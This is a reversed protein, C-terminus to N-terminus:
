ESDLDLLVHVSVKTRDSFHTNSVQSWLSFSLWLGFVLVLAHFRRNRLLMLHWCRMLGACFTYYVLWRWFWGSWSAAIIRRDVRNFPEVFWRVKLLLWAYWGLELAPIRWSSASVPRREICRTPRKVVSLRKGVQRSLFSLGGFECIVQRWVM